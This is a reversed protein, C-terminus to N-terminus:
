AESNHSHTTLCAVSQLLISPRAYPHQLSRHSEKPPRRSFNGWVWTLCPFGHQDLVALNNEHELFGAGQSQDHKESVKNVSAEPNSKNAMKVSRCSPLM